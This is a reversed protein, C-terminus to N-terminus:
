ANVIAPYAKGNLYLVVDANAIDQNSSISGSVLINGKASKANIVDQHAIPNITVTASIPAQTEPQNVEPQNVEPQNVEP